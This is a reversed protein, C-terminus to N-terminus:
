CPGATRSWRRGARRRRRSPGAARRQRFIAAEDVREAALLLHHEAIGIGVLVAAEDGRAPLEVLGLDAQDLHEAVVAHADAQEVAAAARDPAAAARAVVRDEGLGAAGHLPLDADGFLALDDRAFIRVALDAAAVELRQDRRRQLRAQQLLLDGRGIGGIELVISASDSWGGVLGIAAEDVLGLAEHLIEPGRGDDGLDRREVDARPGGRALLRLRDLIKRAIGQTNEQACHRSISGPQNPKPEATFANM